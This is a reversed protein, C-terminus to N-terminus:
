GDTGGEAPGGKGPERYGYERLTVVDPREHSRVHLEVSGDGHFWRQVVEADWASFGEREPLVEVYDGVGPPMPWSAEVERSLMTSGRKEEFWTVCIM